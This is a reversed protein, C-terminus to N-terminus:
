GGLPLQVGAMGGFIQTGDIDGFGSLWFAEVFAGVDGLPFGVGWFAGAALGSASGELLPQSRSKYSRTMFGALAGIFPSASEPDGFAYSVGAVGGYLNTKDGDPPPEHGNSGYFGHVGLSIPAEGFPFSVGGAGMWGTNAHDAFGGTPFTVGGGLGVMVQASGEVPASLVCIAAALVVGLSRRM